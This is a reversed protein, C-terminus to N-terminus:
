RKDLLVRENGIRRTLKIKDLYEAIPVAYKRSIGLSDKIDGITIKEKKKFLEKIKTIVFELADKHLYIEPTIKVLSGEEVLLNFM